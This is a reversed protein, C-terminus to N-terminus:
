EAGLTVRFQGEREEEALSGWTRVIGTKRREKKFYFNKAM